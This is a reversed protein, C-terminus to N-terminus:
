KNLSDLLKKIAKFDYPKNIIGSFDFQPHPEIEGTLLYKLGEPLNKALEDGSMKPMRYDLFYVLPNDIKAQALAEFPDCFGKIEFEDSNLLVPFLDVIDQEDDVIYAIKKM